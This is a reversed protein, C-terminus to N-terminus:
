AARRRKWDLSVGIRREWCGNWDTRLGHQELVDTIERAVALATDETEALSGFALYLGDGDLARDTDQVHYFAYGRVDRGAQRAEGIEGWIEVAGCRGCCSVNQRCVIGAQDLRAFAADLRECDTVDPWTAQEALHMEVIDRVMRRVAVDLVAPDAGDDFLEVVGAVIDDPSRFGAAVDRRISGHMEDLIAYLDPFLM